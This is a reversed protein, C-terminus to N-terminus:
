TSKFFYNKKATRLLKNVKNNLTKYKTKHLNTRKNMYKKYLRNKKNIMKILDKTIWPLSSKNRSKRKRKLPTCKDLMNTFVKIFKDYASNANDNLKFLIM